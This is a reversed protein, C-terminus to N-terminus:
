KETELQSQLEERYEEIKRESFRDSWADDDFVKKWVGNTLLEGNYRVAAAMNNGFPAMRKSAVEFGDMDVDQLVLFTEQKLRRVREMDHHHNFPPHHRRRAQKPLDEPDPKEWEEKHRTKFGAGGTNNFGGYSCAKKRLNEFGLHKAVLGSIEANAPENIRNLLVEVAKWEAHLQESKQAQRKVEDQTPMGDRNQQNRINQAVPDNPGGKRTM